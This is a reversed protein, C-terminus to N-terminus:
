RSQRRILSPVMTLMLVHLLTFSLGNISDIDTEGLFIVAIGVMLGLLCRRNSWTTAFTSGLTGGICLGAFGTALPFGIGYLVAHLGLWHEIAVAIVIAIAPPIIIRGLPEARGAIMAFAFVISAPLAATALASPLEGSGIAAVLVLSLFPALSSLMFQLLGYIPVVLLAAAFLMWWPPHVRGVPPQQFSPGAPLPVAIKARAERPPPGSYDPTRYPPVPPHPCVGPTDVESLCDPCLSAECLPCNRMCNNCRIRSCIACCGGYYYEPVIDHCIGCQFDPRM